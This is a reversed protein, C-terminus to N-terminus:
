HVSHWFLDLRTIIFSLNSVRNKQSLEYAGDLLLFVFGGDMEWRNCTLSDVYSFFLDSLAVSDGRM